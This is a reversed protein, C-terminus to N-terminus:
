QVVKKSRAVASFLRQLGTQILTELSHDPFLSFDGAGAVLYRSVTVLKPQYRNKAKRPTITWHTRHDMAALTPAARRLADAISGFLSPTFGSRCPSDCYCKGGQYAGQKKASFTENPVGVVITGKQKQGKELLYIGSAEDIRQNFRM